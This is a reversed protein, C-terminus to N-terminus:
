GFLESTLVWPLPGATVDLLFATAERSDNKWLAASLCLILSVKREDSAAVVGWVVLLFESDSDEGGKWLLMAAPASGEKLCFLGLLGETTMLTCFANDLGLTDDSQNGVSFGSQTGTLSSSSFGPGELAVGESIFKAGFLGLVSAEFELDARATVGLAAM